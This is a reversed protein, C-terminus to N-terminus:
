QAAFSSDARRAGAVPSGTALFIIALNKFRFHLPAVCNKWSLFPNETLAIPASADPHRRRANSYTGIERSTVPTNAVLAKKLGKL